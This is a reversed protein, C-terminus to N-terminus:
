EVLILNVVVGILEVLVILHRMIMWIMLYKYVQDAWVKFNITVTNDDPNTDTSSTSISATNSYNHNKNDTIDPATIAIEITENYDKSMNGDYACTLTQTSISCIWNAPTTINEDFIPFASDVLDTVVVNEADRYGINAVELEFRTVDNELIPKFKIKKNIAVNTGDIITINADKINNDLDIDIITADSTVSAGQGLDGLIGDISKARFYFTKIDDIDLGSRTCTVNIKSSASCNWASDDDSPTDANDQYFELGTPLTTKFNINNTDFPGHNKVVMKYTAIGSSELTPDVADYTVLEVDASEIITTKVNESDNAHNVDGDYFATATSKFVGKSRGSKLTINIDKSENGAFSPFQCFVVDNTTDGTSPTAGIYSCESLDVNTYEFGLPITITLNADGNTASATNNKLKIHYYFESGAPVLEASDEFSVPQMDSDLAFTSEIFIINLLLFTYIFRILM